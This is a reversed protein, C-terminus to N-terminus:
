PEDNRCPIGSDLPWPHNDLIVDKYGPHRCDMGAHRTLKVANGNPPPPRHTHEVGLEIALNLAM